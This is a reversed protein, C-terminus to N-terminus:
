RWEGQIQFAAWYYPDATRSEAALELQAQRLAAPPSQKGFYLHRYFKEMLRSTAYDDVEWLSAMVRTAGAHMFARTLGVLGESHIEKGLGTECGSLVILEVPLRLRFIDAVALLGNQPKGNRDVLSFVLGSSEPVVSDWQGHTAFHIVRYQALSPDKANALNADFGTASLGAPAVSLIARAEEATFVLRDLKEGRSMSRVRVLRASAKPAPAGTLREDQDSFVPDAFIALDKPAVPRATAAQRLERLASASPLAAIEHTILLPRATGPAPLAAFPVYQLAGDAVVVLRRKGVVLKAIPGLILRTLGTASELYDTRTTLARYLSRSLAEIRARGPLRKVAVSSKTIVFVYSFDDGLTYEVLATQEDLLERQVFGVDVVEPTAISRYRPTRSRNESELDDIRDAVDRIEANLKVLAEGGEPRTVLRLRTELKESLELQLRAKRAAMDPGLAEGMNVQASRLAELLTQSRSKEAVAFASDVMSQALLMEVLELYYPRVGARFLARVRDTGGLRSAQAEIARLADGYFRLAPRTRGADRELRARSLLIQAEDQSGPALTQVISQARILNKRATAFRRQHRALDGAIELAHAIALSGPSLTSRISLAQQLAIAAEAYRGRKIHVRALAAASDATELSGKDKAERIAKARAFLTLASDLEDRRSAIAGLNHLCVASEIENPHLLNRISLSKEFYSEARDLDGRLFALAGLNSLSKASDLGNPVVSNTIDFDRRLFEEARGLQGRKIAVSALNTLAVAMGNSQPALKETLDLERLTHEEAKALDGRKRAVAALANWLSAAVLSTQKHHGLEDLGALFRKEAAIWDNRFYDINGWRLLTAARLKKESPPMRALAEGFLGEAAEVRKASTALRALRVLCWAALLRSQGADRLVQRWALEAKDFDGSRHLDAATRYNATLESDRFIPGVEIGSEMQSLDWTMTRSAREGQLRVTAGCGYREILLVDFQLPNDVIVPKGSGCQWESVLDGPALGAVSAGQSTKVSEVVVGTSSRSPHGVPTLTACAALVGAVQLRGLQM